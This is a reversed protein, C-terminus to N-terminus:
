GLTQINEIFQRTQEAVSNIANSDIGLVRAPYTRSLDSDDHEKFSYGPIRTISNALCVILFSPSYNAGEAITHHQEATYSYEGPMNWKRMLSAGFAMHQADVIDMINAEDMIRGSKHLEYLVQLLVMKGMDHLMGLSFLHELDTHSLQKGLLRAAEATAMSHLWLRDLLKNFPATDADFLSRTILLLLYNRTEKIGLRIIAEELNRISTAGRYYSSNSISILRMTLAPDSKIIACIDDINADQNETFLKDVRLAIDPMVPYNIQNSKLREALEMIINSANPQASSMVSGQKDVHLCSQVRAKLLAANFPKLIYDDAGSKLCKNITAPNDDASCMVVPINRWTEHSKIEKLTEFGDKEPMSIDLLILDVRNNDLVTLSETGNAAELVIHNDSSLRHKVIARHMEDDDVILLRARSLQKDRTDGPEEGSVNKSKKLCRWLRSRLLSPEVPKKIYDTAGLSICKVVTENDHEATIMMVPIDQTGSDTKIRKLIEVGNIDPMNIDLLVVDYRELKLHELAKVGGGVSQTLYGAKKLAHSFIERNLPEDDVILISIQSTDLGIASM